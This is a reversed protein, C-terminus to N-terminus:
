DQLIFDAPLSQEMVLEANPIDNALARTQAASYDAGHDLWRQILRQELTAYPVKLFISLDFYQKLDCWEPQNLLLYNGEVLLIRHKTTVIDAGARALDMARDFVPIAVDHDANKLRDLLTSFGDVDFTFPAGKRARHGRADLIMNDYHFGDMPVVIATTEAGDGSNIERALEEALTSKGAAPAGTIAVILRKQTAARTLIEALLAKRNIIQM